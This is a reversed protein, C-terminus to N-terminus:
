TKLSLPLAATNLAASFYRASLQEALLSLVM